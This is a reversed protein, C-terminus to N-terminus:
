FAGWKPLWRPLWRTNKILKLSTLRTGNLINLLLTYKLLTLMAFSSTYVFFDVENFIAKLIFGMITAMLAAM